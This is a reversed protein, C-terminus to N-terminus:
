KLGDAWSVKWIIKQKLKSFVKLLLQRKEEPMMSSQSTPVLNFTQPIAPIIDGADYTVSIHEFLELRSSLDLPSLYSEMNLARNLIMTLFIITFAIHTVEVFDALNKPLPAGPRCTMLGSMVTKPM